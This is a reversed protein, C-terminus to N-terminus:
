FHQAGKSFKLYVTNKLSQHRTGSKENKGTWSGLLSSLMEKRGKRGKRWVGQPLTVSCSAIPSLNQIKLFYSLIMSPVGSIMEKMSSCHYWCSAVWSPPLTDLSRLNLGEQLLFRCKPSSSLDFCCLSFKSTANKVKMFGDTYVKTTEGNEKARSTSSTGALWAPWQRYQEEPKMIAVHSERSDSTVLTTDLCPFTM